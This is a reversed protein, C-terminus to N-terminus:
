ISSQLFLFLHAHQRWRQCRMHRKSDFPADGKNWARSWLNRGSVCYNMNEDPQCTFAAPANGSSDRQRGIIVWLVLKRKGAGPSYKMKWVSCVKERKGRRRRMHPHRPTSTHACFADPLVFLRSFSLALTLAHVEYIYDMKSSHALPTRGRPHINTRKNSHCGTKYIYINEKKEREAQGLTCARMANSWSSSSAFKANCPVALLLFPRFGKQSAFNGDNQMTDDLCRLIQLIKHCFNSCSLLSFCGDHAKSILINQYLTM